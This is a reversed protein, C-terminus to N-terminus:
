FKISVYINKFLHQIYNDSVGPTLWSLCFFFCEHFLNQQPFLCIKALLISKPYIKLLNLAKEPNKKREIRLIAEQRGM